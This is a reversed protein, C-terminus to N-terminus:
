RPSAQRASGAPLPAPADPMWPGLQDAMLLFGASSLHTDDPLYLDVVQNLNQQFVRLLDPTHVGAAILTQTPNVGRRQDAHADDLLCDRYASSKDPILVFIFNKGRATFEQQLQAINAVAAALQQPTWNLKDDDEAYYLLRDARRSSFRACGARLPANVVRHGVLTRADMAMQLTHLATVYTYALHPTPPWTERVVATDSTPVELAAPPAARCPVLDSFRKIFEREVSEVVVTRVSPQALAHNAWNRICGAEAYAFTLMGGKGRSALASQWINLRSFSDGLVLVDPDAAARGNPNIHVVPQRANWGFDREAYSGTRTLDGSLPQFVASLVAASGAIVAVPGLFYLLYRRM